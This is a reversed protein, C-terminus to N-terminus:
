FIKKKPCTGICTHVVHVLVHQGRLLGAEGPVVVVVDLGGDGVGEGGGGEPEAM